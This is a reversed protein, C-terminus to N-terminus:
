SAVRGANVCKVLTLPAPHKRWETKAVPSGADDVAMVCRGDEFSIHVAEGTETDCWTVYHLQVGNADFVNWGWHTKGTAIM